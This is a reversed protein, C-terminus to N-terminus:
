TRLPCDMLSEVGYYFLPEVKSVYLGFLCGPGPLGLKGRAVMFSSVMADGSVIKQKVHEESSWKFGSEFFFGNCLASGVRRMPQGCLSLSYVMAPPAGVGFAMTVTKETSLFIRWEGAFKELARTKRQLGSPDLSAYSLDDALLLGQVPGLHLFPDNYDALDLQSIYLAFLIPSISDGQQVGKDLKFFDSYRGRVKVCASSEEYLMRLVTMHSGWAGAGMLFGFLLTHDVLDFAKHIDALVLYLPRNAQMYKQILVHLIFVNDSTRHHPRFGIQYPQLVSLEEAWQYLRKALVATYLHRLRPLISIPRFEGPKRKPVPVVLSRSWIKPPELSLQIELFLDALDEADFAKLHEVTVFDEGSCSSAMNEIVGAIESAAFPEDLLAHMQQPGLDLVSQIKEMLSPTFVRGNLPPFGTLVDSVKTAIATASGKTEMGKGEMVMRVFKWYGKLGKQSELEELLLRQDRRRKRRRLRSLATKERQYGSKLVYSLHLLPHRLYWKIRKYARAIKGLDSERAVSGLIGGGLSSRAPDKRVSSIRTEVFSKVVADMPVPSRTLPPTTFALEDPLDALADDDVQLSILIELPKHDSLM